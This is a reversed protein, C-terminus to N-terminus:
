VGIAAKMRAPSLPLERMRVGTADAVANALCAATPGQSAEGTGLFPQGPREMVQIDIRGPADGFRLIPYSSWDRSLIRTGAFRVAEFMTWSLSQVVGGEVQNRIGDPNVAEGSDVAANVRLVRIRGSEHDVEVEMALALYAGLNKYRAFAFGRGRGRAQQYASWGFRAAAAQIVERARKDEMHRLRFEVPDAGAATAMEDMFSELSFINMYAGLGRMASVRLPMAPIFHHVVKSNRFKYLPVSNRDGGGEPQPIKQPKSPTFPTALTPGAALDGASGPRTSHTNSWVEYQWEAVSGDAALTARAQSIMAPGYPESTHEDVRMWQVRVPRGPLARALLAADGGADDAANHGYCGSGETHIVHVREPPFQLLDSIAKRLPFAGQGHSWVTMKDGQLWAVACSPGISSHMQYPRHYTANVTRVGTGGDNRIDSITEDESPLARLTAYINQQAPLAPGDTWKAARRLADVAVIAQFEKAAIVAVFSGDRVVKLVGPLRSAPASDLSVLQAGRSPPRLVRGHVMGPLRMDQVYAAGGSVKAPIDVRPVPKGMYAHTKPDILRSTPAASVHLNQGSVLAGYGIRKGDPARVEGHQAVLQAAPLNWQTAALGVLLERVQAAAHLIATGSDQMSHSGATYGENATRETDATVIGIRNWDVCLQEAAVQLLATRIGQGLEAKGTFVTAAGNADIRIWADLEPTKKLSGPLASAKGDAPKTDGGSESKDQALARAALSFSLVLAGGGAIFQRRTVALGADATKAGDIDEVPASM